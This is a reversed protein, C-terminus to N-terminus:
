RDGENVERLLTAPNNSFNSVSEGSMRVYNQMLM